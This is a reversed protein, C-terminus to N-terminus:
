NLRTGEAIQQTWDRDSDENDCRRAEKLIGDLIRLQSNLLPDGIPTGDKVDYYLDNADGGGDEHFNLGDVFLGRFCTMGVCQITLKQKIGFERVLEKMLNVQFVAHLKAKKLIEKQIYEDFSVEADVMKQKVIKNLADVTQQYRITEEFARSEQKGLLSCHKNIDAHFYRELRGTAYSDFM